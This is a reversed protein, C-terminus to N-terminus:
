RSDVLSSVPAVAGRGAPVAPEAPPILGRYVVEYSAAAREWSWDQLMGARVVRHFDAPADRYLSAARVCTQVFAHPTFAVFSFGTATGAALTAPTTDTITDALGGTHRVIPPTGYKLSYLQNLGSPEFMSPMLYLDSGAEIQHALTEDFGLYLGLKDPYRQHLLTLRHHYDPDGDGLVVVQVDYEFLEEAGRILLDVGKQEVLRAIMGFMPTRPKEPLHFAKQVAAKCFGKGPEVADPSYRSAILPDTEPNWSAYDVGNVIGSLRTRNETLVGDLGCGFYTTRIEESYTPSVTNIWDAFLVGTKLLNVQNYFEIQTHNFLKWSLGTQPFMEAPFTGQYAINHITFLTRIRRYGPRHQYLERLYAPILGTQWDNAHLIDPIFGLHPVAELVARSFFSFRELNDAYDRKLGFHMYQYITRGQAPDDREFLEPNEVLWVPVDSGPMNSRWLRTPVMRGQHPISLVIDTPRIAQKGRRVVGYLPLIVAATHGLRALAQPLYGCVDALGGTKAFGVVESSAVLISLAANVPM